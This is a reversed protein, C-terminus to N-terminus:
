KGYGGTKKWDADAPRKYDRYPRIGKVPMVLGFNKLAPPSSATWELTNADWPDAVAKEGSRVAKVILYILLAIAIAMLFGGVTSVMNLLGWGPLDPYTYVRRTMGMVGLAHQVLFTLNFGSVFLWFFWKGLRKDFM